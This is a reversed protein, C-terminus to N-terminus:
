ELEQLYAERLKILAWREKHLLREYAEDSWDECGEEYVDIHVEVDDIAENVLYQISELETFTFEVTVM